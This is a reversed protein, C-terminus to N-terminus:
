CSKAWTHSLVSSDLALDQRHGKEVCGLRQKLGPQAFYTVHVFGKPDPLGNNFLSGPRGTGAWSCDNEGDFWDPDDGSWACMRGEGGAESFFCVSGPECRDYGTATQTTGTGSDPGPSTTPGTAADARPKTAPDDAVLMRVGFGAVALALVGAAVTLLPRSYM